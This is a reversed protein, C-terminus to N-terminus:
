PTSRHCNPTISPIVASFAQTEAIAAGTVTGGTVNPTSSATNDLINSFLVDYFVGFGARIATKNEGFCAM